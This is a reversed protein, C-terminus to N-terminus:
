GPELVHMISIHTLCQRSTTWTDNWQTSDTYACSNRFSIQLNYAYYFNVQLSYMNYFTNYMIREVAHAGMINVFCSYMIGNFMCSSSYVHKSTQQHECVRTHTIFQHTNCRCLICMCMIHQLYHLLSTVYISCVFDYSRMLM